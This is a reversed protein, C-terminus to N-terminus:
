MVSCVKYQTILKFFITKVRGKKKAKDLFTPTFRNLISSIPNSNLSEFNFLVISFAFSIQVFTICFEQSEFNNSCYHVFTLILIQCMVSECWHCSPHLCNASKWEVALANPKRLDIQLCFSITSCVSTCFERYRSM